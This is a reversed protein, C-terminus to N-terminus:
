TNKEDENWVGTFMGAAGALVTIAAGIWILLHPGVTLGVGGILFGGVVAGSAAWTTWPWGHGPNGLM